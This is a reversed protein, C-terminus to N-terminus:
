GINLISHVKDCILKVEKEPITEMNALMELYRDM